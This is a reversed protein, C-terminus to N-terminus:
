RGADPRRARLDAGGTAEWWGTCLTAQYLSLPEDGGWNAGWYVHQAALDLSAFAESWYDQHANQTSGLRILRPDEALELLFLQDAAWGSGGYTSVLTWGAVAPDYVRGFHTGVDWGVDGMYLIATRHEWGDPDDVDVAMTWDCTRTVEENDAGCADTTVFLQEGGRGWGWGSHDCNTDLRVPHTFDLDFATPGDWPAAADGTEKCTGVVVKSGSPAVDVYNPTHLAPYVDSMRGVITDSQLDYSVIDLLGTCQGDDTQGRCIQFAWTRFDTSPAGEVGNAAVKASPFEATFDHVLQDDGSLVDIKRLAAGDRYYVTTDAAGSSDWQLENPEGVALQRVVTRDALRNVAAGGQDDFALVYEGTRNAPTWRSYGNTYAASPPDTLRVVSVGTQPVGFPVGAVPLPGDVPEITSPSVAPEVLLDDCAAVDTPDDPAPLTGPDHCAFLFVLALRLM